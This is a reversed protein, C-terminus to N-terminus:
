NGGSVVSSTIDTGGMTVIVSKLTYYKNATITATYTENEAVSTASNSTICNSLTNTISYMTTVVKLTCIDSDESIGYKDTVTCKVQYGNVADTVASAKLTFSTETADIGLNAISKWAGSASERYQWLYTIQNGIAEISETVATGSKVSISEPQKTITAFALTEPSGTSMNTRFKNILDIDIGAVKALWAAVNIGISASSSYMGAYKAVLAKWDARTRLRETCFSTLEYDKDIDSQSVGLVAELFFAIIGTRDAGASCHFYTPIDYAANHMCLRVAEAYEEIYQDKGIGDGYWPTNINSFDVDDGINSSTYSVEDEGRLDIEYRIKAQDHLMKIDYDSAYATSSSSDDNSNASGRFLLGYKVTGGDCAWGGLDRINSMRGGKTQMQRLAGTAKVRGNDAMKGDSVVYYRFTHNPILNYITYTGSSVSDSWEYNSDEDVVYITGASSVMVQYGNPKDNVYKGIADSYPSESFHSSTYDSASYADSDVFQLAIDNTAQFVKTENDAAINRIATAMKDPTYKDTSGNKSRIADAIATLKSSSIIVKDAM